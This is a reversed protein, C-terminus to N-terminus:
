RTQASTATASTSLTFKTRLLRPRIRRAICPSWTPARDSPRCTVLALTATNTMLAHM